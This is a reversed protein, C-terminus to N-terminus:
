CRPIVQKPTQTQLTDSFDRHTEYKCTPPTRVENFSFKAIWLCLVLAHFDGM